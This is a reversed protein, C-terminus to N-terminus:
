GDVETTANVFDVGSPLSNEGKFGWESVWFKDSQADFSKGVNLTQM